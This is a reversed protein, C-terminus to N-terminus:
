LSSNSGYNLKFFSILLLSSRSLAVFSHSITKSALKLLVSTFVAVAEPSFEVVSDEMEVQEEEVTQQDEKGEEQEDDEKAHDDVMEEDGENGGNEM